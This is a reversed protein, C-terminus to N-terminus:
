CVDTRNRKIRCMALRHRGANVYNAQTRATNHDAGDLLINM